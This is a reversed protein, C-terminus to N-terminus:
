NKEAAEFQARRQSFRDILDSFARDAAETYRDLVAEVLRPNYPLDGDGGVISAPVGSWGILCEKLLPEEIMAAANDLGANAAVIRRMQLATPIRLRLTIGQAQVDFERASNWGGIDTM